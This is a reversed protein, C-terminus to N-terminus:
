PCGDACILYATCDPDAACSTAIDGVTPDCAEGPALYSDICTECRNTAASGPSSCYDGAGGCASACPGGGACLCNAIDQFFDTSGLAYAGQCCTGICTRNGNDSGDDELWCDVDTADDGGSGSASSSGSGSGGSSSGSSSGSGSGGSAADSFAGRSSGGSSGGGADSSGSSSGGSGSISGDSRGGSGADSSGALSGVGSGRTAGVAGGSSSRTSRTSGGDDGSEGPDGSDLPGGNACGLGRVAIPIAMMMLGQLAHNCHV